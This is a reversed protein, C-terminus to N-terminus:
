QSADPGRSAKLRKAAAKMNRQTDEWLVKVTEGRRGLSAAIRSLNQVDIRTLEGFRKGSPVDVGLPPVVVDAASGAQGRRDLEDIFLDWAQEPPIRDTMDAHTVARRGAEYSSFCIAAPAPRDSHVRLRDAAPSDVIAEPQSSPYRCGAARGSYIATDGPADM